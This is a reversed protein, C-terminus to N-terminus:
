LKVEKDTKIKESEIATRMKKFERLTKKTHEPRANVKIMILVSIIDEIAKKITKSDSFVRSNLNYDGVIGWIERKLKERIEGEMRTQWRPIVIM